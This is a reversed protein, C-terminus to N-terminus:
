PHFQEWQVVLRFRGEHMKHTQLMNTYDSKMVMDTLNGYGWYVARAEDYAGGKCNDTCNGSKIAPKTLKSM